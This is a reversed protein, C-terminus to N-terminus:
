SLVLMKNDKYVRWGYATLMKIAGCKCHQIKFVVNRFPVLSDYQEPIWEHQHESTM